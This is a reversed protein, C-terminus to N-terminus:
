HLLDQNSDAEVLYDRFWYNWNKVFGEPAWQNESFYTRLDWVWLRKSFHWLVEDDPLLSLDDFQDLHYTKWWEPSKREKMIELADMGVTRRAWKKYAKMKWPYGKIPHTITSGSMPTANQLYLSAPQVIRSESRYRFPLLLNEQVRREVELALKWVKEKAADNFTNPLYPEIDQGNILLSSM